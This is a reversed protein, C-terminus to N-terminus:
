VLFPTLGSTPTAANARAGATQVPPNESIAWAAVNWAFDSPVLKEDREHARGGRALTDVHADAVHEFVGIDDIEVLPLRCPAFPRAAFSPRPVSGPSYSTKWPSQQNGIPSPLHDPEFLLQPM